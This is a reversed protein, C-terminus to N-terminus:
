QLIGIKTFSYRYYRISTSFDQETDFEQLLFSETKMKMQKGINEIEDQLM